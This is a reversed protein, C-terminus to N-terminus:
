TLNSYLDQFKLAQFRPTYMRCSEEEFNNVIVM